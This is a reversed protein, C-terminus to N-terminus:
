RYLEWNEAFSPAGASLTVDSFTGTSLSGEEHATVALGVLIPDQLDFDEDAVFVQEGNEDVYYATFTNGVRELIHTGPNQGEADNEGFATPGNRDTRFQLNYYTGDPRVRTSIDPSGPDLDQRAMLCAKAWESTSTGAELYVDAKLVFDGSWEKYVFQFDDQEDWIDHGSGTITYTGTAPDYTTSGAAGLQGGDVDVNADFIGVQAFASATIFVFMISVLLYISDRKIM